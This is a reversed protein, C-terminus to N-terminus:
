DLSQFYCRNNLWLTSSIVPLLLPILDFISALWVRIQITCMLVMAWCKLVCKSIALDRSQFYFRENLWLPSSIVPLLSLPSSISFNHLCSKFWCQWFIQFCCRKNLRVSSLFHCSVNWIVDTTGSGTFLHVLITCLSYLFHCPSPPCVFEPFRTLWVRVLITWMLVM